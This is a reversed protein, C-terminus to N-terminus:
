VINALKNMLESGNAVVKIELRGVRGVLEQAFAIREADAGALDVVIQKGDARALGVIKAADLRKQMISAAADPSGEALSYTMRLGNKIETPKAAGQDCACVLAIALVATSRMGTM